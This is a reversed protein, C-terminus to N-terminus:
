YRIARAEEMQDKIADIVSIGGAADMSSSTRDGLMADASCRRGDHQM